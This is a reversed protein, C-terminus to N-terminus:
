FKTITVGAADTVDTSKLQTKFGADAEVLMSKYVLAKTLVRVLVGAGSAGGGVPSSGGFDALQDVALSQDFLVCPSDYSAGSAASWRQFLGSNGGTNLRVLAQGPLYDDGDYLIRASLFVAQDRRCALIIPNDKRFIQKNFKADQSGM